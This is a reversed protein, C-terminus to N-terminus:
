FRHFREPKAVPKHRFVLLYRAVFYVLGGSCVLLLPVLMVGASAQGRISLYPATTLAMIAAALPLRLYSDTDNWRLIIAIIVLNMVFILGTALATIRRRARAFCM